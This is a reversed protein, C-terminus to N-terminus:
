LLQIFLIIIYPGLPEVLWRDELYRVSFCGDMTAILYKDKVENWSIFNIYRDDVIGSAKHNNIIYLGRNTAALIGQNTQVLQRCKDNLGEVKKYIYNVSKLKSILKKSYEPVVTENQQYLKM